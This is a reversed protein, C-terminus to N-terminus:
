KAFSEWSVGWMKIWLAEEMSRTRVLPCCCLNLRLSLALWQMRIPTRWIYNWVFHLIGNVSSLEIYRTTTDGWKETRATTPCTFTIFDQSSFQMSKFSTDIKRSLVNRWRLGVQVAFNCRIKAGAVCSMTTSYQSLLIYVCLATQLNYLQRKRM